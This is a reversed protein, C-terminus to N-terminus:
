KMRATLRYRVYGSFDCSCVFTCASICICRQIEREAAAKKEGEDCINDWLGIKARCAVTPSSDSCGVKRRAAILFLALDIPEVITNVPVMAGLCYENSVVTVSIRAPATLPNSGPRRHSLLLHHRKPIQFPRLRRAHCAQPPGGRERAPSQGHLLPEPTSPLSLPRSPPSDPVREAM